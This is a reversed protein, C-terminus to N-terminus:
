TGHAIVEERVPHVPIHDEQVVHFEELRDGVEEHVEKPVLHLDLLRLKELIAEGLHLHEETAIDDIREFPLM